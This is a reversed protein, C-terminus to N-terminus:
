NSKEQLVAEIFLGRKFKNKIPPVPMKGSIQNLEFKSHLKDPFFMFFANRTDALHLKVCFIYINKAHLDPYSYNSSVDSLVGQVNM